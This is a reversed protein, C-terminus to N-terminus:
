LGRRAPELLRAQAENEYIYAPLVHEAPIRWTPHFQHYCCSVTIPSKGLACERLVIDTDVNLYGLEDDRHWGMWEWYDRTAGTVHTTLGASLRLRNPMKDLIDYHEWFTPFDEIIKPNDLWNVGALADTEEQSLTYRLVSTRQELSQELMLELINYQSLLEHAMAYVIYDSKSDIGEKRWVRSLPIYKDNKTFRTIFPFRTSLEEVERSTSDGSNDVLTFDFNKYTIRGWSKLTNELYSMTNNGVGMIVSVKNM